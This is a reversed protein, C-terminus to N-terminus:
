DNFGGLHKWKQGKRIAYVMGESVGHRAAAIKALDTTRFIDLAQETTLKRNFRARVAADRGNDKPSGWYLHEPNVCRPNDCTHLAWDQEPRPRGYLTLAVHTAYNQRGEFRVVGYGKTLSGCWPWCEGKVRSGAKSWFQKEFEKGENRLMAGGHQASCKRSCFKAKRWHAWTCRTDRYFTVGCRACMKGYNHNRHDQM